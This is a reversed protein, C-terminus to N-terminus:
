VTDPATSYATKFLTCTINIDHKSKTNLAPFHMFIKSWCALRRQVTELTSKMISLYVKCIYSKLNM